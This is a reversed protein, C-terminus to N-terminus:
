HLLHALAALLVGIWILSPVWALPWRLLAGTGRWAAADDHTTPHPGTPSAGHPPSEAAVAGNSPAEAPPTGALAHALRAEAAHLKREAEHLRHDTEHLLHEASHVGGTVFADLLMGVLMGAPSIWLGLRTLAHLSLWQLLLAPVATALLLSVLWLYALEPPRHRGPVAALRGLRQLYYKEWLAHVLYALAVGVLLDLGLDVLSSKREFPNAAIAAHLEVGALPGIPTAHEDDRTYGAGVLAYHIPQGQAALAKLADATGADLALRNRPPLQRVLKHLSIQRPEPHALAHRLADVSRCYDVLGSGPAPAQGAPCIAEALAVGLGPQAQPLHQRVMGFQRDLEPRAFHLGKQQRTQLWDRIAEAERKELPDRAQDLLALDLPLILRLRDHHADLWDDLARDCDDAGQLARRTTPSLDLDIALTQLSDVTLLPALDALLACRDLPSRGLYRSRFAEGELKIIALHRLPATSGAPRADDDVRSAVNGIVARLPLDVPAVLAPWTHILSAVFLAALLARVFFQLRPHDDASAPWRRLRLAALACVLGDRLHAVPTKL